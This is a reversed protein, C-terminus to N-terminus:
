NSMKYLHSQLTALVHKFFMKESQTLDCTSTRLAAHAELFFWIISISGSMAAAKAVEM